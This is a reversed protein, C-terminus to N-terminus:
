DSLLWHRSTSWGLFPRAGPATHEGPTMGALALCLGAYAPGFRARFAPPQKALEEGAWVVFVDSVKRPALSLFFIMQRWATAADRLNRLTRRPAVPTQLMRVVASYARRALQPIAAALRPPMGLGGILAALNHTTLIQQQELIMGNRAVSRPMGAVGARKVCLAGFAGVDDMRQIEACPMGYYIAYLTGDLLRAARQAAHLGDETPERIFKDAPADDVLPLNVGSRAAATRIAAILGSRLPREPWSTLVLEVVRVLSARGELRAVAPALQESSRLIRAAILEPLPLLASRLVIRHLRPTVPEGAPLGHEEALDEELPGLVAGLDDIREPVMALRDLVARSWEKRTPRGAARAQRARLQALAESGPLGRRMAIRALIGRVEGVQHGTMGLPDNVCVELLAALRALNSRKRDPDKCRHPEGRRWAYDDLVARARERWGDPYVQCPWGDEVTESFLLVIQDLFPAWAGIAEREALKRGREVLMELQAITTAVPQLHVQVDEM